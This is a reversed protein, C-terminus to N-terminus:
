ENTEEKQAHDAAALLALALDRAETPTIHTEQFEIGQPLLAVKGGVGLAVKKVLPTGVVWGSSAPKQLDPALLGADTLAQAADRAVDDADRGDLATPWADAGTMHDYIVEAAREQNTNM